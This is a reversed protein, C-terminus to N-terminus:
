SYALCQSYTLFCFLVFGYLLTGTSCDRQSYLVLVTSVILVFHSYLSLVSCFFFSLTFKSVFFRVQLLLFITGRERGFLAVTLILSM